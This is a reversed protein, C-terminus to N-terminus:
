SVPSVLKASNSTLVLKGEVMAAFLRLTSRGKAFDVIVKRANPPLIYLSCCRTALPSVNPIM